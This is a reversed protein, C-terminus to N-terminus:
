ECADCIHSLTFAVNQTHKLASQINELEKLQCWLASFVM